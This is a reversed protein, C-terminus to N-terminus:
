VSAAVEAERRFRMRVELSHKLDSHLVKIAFRKTSIRTHHAEYVRGMGGEAIARVMKYTDALTTGVLPDPGDAALDDPHAPGLATPRDSENL